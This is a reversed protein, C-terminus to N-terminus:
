KIEFDAHASGGCQSGQYNLRGKAVIRFKGSNPFNLTTDPKFVYSGTTWSPEILKDMVVVNLAGTGENATEVTVDVMCHQVPHSLSITASLYVPGPSFVNGGGIDVKAVQADRPKIVVGVMGDEITMTTSASGLCHPHGNYDVGTLTATYKGPKTYQRMSVVSDVPWKIPIMKSPEGNDSYELKAYCVINPNNKDPGFYDVGFMHKVQVIKHAATIKPPNTVVNAGNLPSTADSITTTAGSLTGATALSCATMLAIAGISNLNIQASNM